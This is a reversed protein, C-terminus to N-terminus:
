PLSATIWSHQLSRPMSRRDRLSTIGHCSCGLAPGLLRPERRAREEVRPVCLGPRRHDGHRPVALSRELLERGACGLFANNDRGPGADGPHIDVANVLHFQNPLHSLAETKVRKYGLIDHVRVLPGLELIVAVVEVEHQFPEITVFAAPDAALLHADDQSPVEEEGEV